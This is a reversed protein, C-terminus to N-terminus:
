RVAEGLARWCEGTQVVDRELLGDLEAGDDLEHCTGHIGGVVLRQAHDDLCVLERQLLSGPLRCVEEVEDKAGATATARPADDLGAGILFSHQVELAPPPPQIGLTPVVAVRRLLTGRADSPHQLRIHLVSGM